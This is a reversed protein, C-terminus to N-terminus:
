ILKSLEAMSSFVLDAGVSKLRDKHDEFSAYYDSEVENHIMMSDLIVGDCDFILLMCTVM